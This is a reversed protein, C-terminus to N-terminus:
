FSYNHVLNAQSISQQEDGKESPSLYWYKFDPLIGLLHPHGHEGLGLLLRILTLEGSQDTFHM